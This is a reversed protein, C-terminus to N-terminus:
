ENRGDEKQTSAKFLLEKEERSLSDYGSASIKDLIIDIQEEPIMNGDKDTNRTNRSKAPSATARQAQPNAYKVKMRPKKDERYFSWVIETIDTGNRLLYVNLFGLLGGLLIAFGWPSFFGSSAWVIFFFIGGVWRIEVQGFLFMQIPFHPVLTVAGIMLLMLLPFMGSPFAANRGGWRQIPNDAQYIAIKEDAPTEGSAQPDAEPTSIVEETVLLDPNPAQAVNLITAYTVTLLGILPIAFIVIRRTRVENLFQQHIQGFTFLMMGAFVTWLFWFQSHFFPWTVLSWPQKVLELLSGPLTLYLIWEDYHDPFALVMIGQLLLGGVMLALLWGTTQHTNLFQKIRDQLEM